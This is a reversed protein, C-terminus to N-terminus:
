PGPDFMPLGCDPCNRLTKGRAYRTGCRPCPVKSAAMAMRTFQVLWAVALAVQVPVAWDTVLSLGWGALAILPLGPLMLLLRVTRRNSERQYQQWHDTYPGM